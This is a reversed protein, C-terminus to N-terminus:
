WTVTELRVTFDINLLKLILRSMVPIVEEKLNSESFLISEITLCPFLINKAINQKLVM